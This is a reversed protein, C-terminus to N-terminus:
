EQQKKVGHRCIKACSPYIRLPPHVNPFDGKGLLPVSPSKSRLLKLSERIFLIEPREGHPGRLSKPNEGLDDRTRLSREPFVGRILRRKSEQSQWPGVARAIVILFAM